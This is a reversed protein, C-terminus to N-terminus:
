SLTIAALIPLSHPAMSILIGEGWPRPSGHLGPDGLGEDWLHPPSRLVWDGLVPPNLPSAFEEKMCKILLSLPTVEVMEVGLSLTAKSATKVRAPPLAGWGGGILPVASLLWAGQLGPEQTHGAQKKLQIPFRWAQGTPEPWCSLHEGAAVEPGLLSRAM